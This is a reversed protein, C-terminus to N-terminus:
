QRNVTATDARACNSWGVGVSIILFPSIFQYFWTSLIDWWDIPHSNELEWQRRAASWFEILIRTCKSYVLSLWWYPNECGHSFNRFYRLIFAPAPAPASAVERLRCLDFRAVVFFLLFFFYSCFFGLSPMVIPIEHRLVCRADVFLLWCVFRWRMRSERLDDEEAETSSGRGSSRGRKLRLTMTPYNIWNYRHCVFSSIYWFRLADNDMEDWNRDGTGLNFWYPESLAPKTVMGRVGCLVAWGSALCHVSCM